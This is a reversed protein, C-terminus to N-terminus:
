DILVRLSHHIARPATTFTQEMWCMIYSLYWVESGSLFSVIDFTWGTSVSHINRDQLLIITISHDFVRAFLKLALSHSRSYTLRLALNYLWAYPGWSEAKKGLYVGSCSKSSITADDRRVGTGNLLNSAISASPM